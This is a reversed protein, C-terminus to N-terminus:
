DFSFPPVSAYFTPIDHDTFFFPISQPGYNTSQNHNNTPCIHHCLIVSVVHSCYIVPYSAWYKYKTENTKVLLDSSLFLKSSHLLIFSISPCNAWSKDKMFLNKLFSFDM